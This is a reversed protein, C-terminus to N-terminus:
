ARLLRTLSVAIHSVDPFSFLPVFPVFLVIPSVLSFFISFFGVGILCSKSCNRCTWLVFCALIQWNKRIRTIVGLLSITERTRCVFFFIGDRITKEEYWMQSKASSFTLGFVSAFSVCVLPFLLLFM